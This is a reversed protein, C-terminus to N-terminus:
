DVRLAVTPDVGAARRAPAWAALGATVAMVLAVVGYTFPDVPSIEYLMSTLWRTAFLGGLIGVVTGVATMALARGVIERAIRGPAAGLATRIGIERFREIVGGSVVGYLGVAALLLAVIAFTEIVRLAFRRPGTSAALISDFTRVRQIPVRANVSWIARELTSTLASPDGSTRVVLSQARDVWPWQGVVIYFADPADAVLSYHKVDGVVGVVTHWGGGSGIEPGFRMQQGIPNRDGFLRKAMSANIVVSRAGDPRDTADLGRGQRIPIRLVSFFDSTVAYRMGSGATNNPDTGTSLAQYGYGDVDGTLPVQNTFAAQEVGPVRRVATLVDQLYQLQAASSDFAHGATILQLTMAHSGDFGAPVALIRRVTRLLLGASILLTLALAVEGVVLLGRASGRGGAVTRAGRRLSSELGGFAAGIAPLTGMALGIATTVALAFMLVTGDIHIADARPLGPPSVALLARLGFEAVAIGLLGGCLALVVSETLLQRLLRGSSAGLASRMAMEQRRQAGRALLLNTVNACSIALLVIVAGIIALLAPRVPGAIDDRVSRVILGQALSAWPPRAFAALSARGINLLERTASEVTGGKRLRGVIQYHHGWVSSSFDATSADRITTWADVGPSLVNAFRKPMIGVVTYPDGDLDIARGVLNRDGGFRRDVFAEALVVVRAGGTHADDSVFLRGALPAASFVDFYNPTVRQGIIREPDGAGTLSPQWGDSAALVDFSRSRARLEIYSGLTAPMPGGNQAFDSLTVIREAGPFPLPSLLIPNVASFVVTSAGIGLALTATASFTFAPRSRLSRLTYRVDALLTDIWHEWGSSRVHERAVTLNGVAQQAARRAADPSLGLREYERAAEDAFHRLEDDVDNDTARARFLARVGHITQRLLRM